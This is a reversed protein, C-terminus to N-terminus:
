RSDVIMPMSIESRMTERIRRFSGRGGPSVPFVKSRLSRPRITEISSKVTGVIVPSTGNTNMM